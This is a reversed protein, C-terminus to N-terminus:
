PAAKNAYMFVPDAADNYALMALPAQEYLWELAEAALVDEPILPRGCVRANREADADGARRDM